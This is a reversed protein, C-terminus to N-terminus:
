PASGTVAVTQPSNPANDAVNMTASYSGSASPTSLIVQITCSANPAISVGGGCNSTHGFASANAGSFSISTVTLNATGTNTLTVPLTATTGPAISGFNLATPSLSVAPALPGSGSVAVIQPSSPATDTVNMTASYSGTAPPTFTVQITCSSGPAISVGGGCNSSHGFASNNAGYFIISSVTLGATGTNTLTVPLTVTKGAAVIGFSLSTPSLMVAPASATIALTGNAFTFNYRASALTGITVTIPYTGIPSSSTATTSLSPAGTTASSQTDGNVFGAITYALTPVAAGQAMQQNNATVTLSAKNVTFIGAVFTFSYNTGAAVTIPYSGPVSTSTATTTVAPVGTFATAATDGNVFGTYAVTLVPLASGYTSSLNNAKVTLVAKAVTMTGNAYTITYNTSAVTGGSITIPYGGVPSASTAITTLSPAGTFATSATDGNVLGTAAYTLTPLTAGYTTTLNNARLTLSAKSVTLTGSTYTITYNTSAVTGAAITIPYTGVKSASTATTTISPTGTFATSATDGNVLGTAAYTLTPLTAGYTTALNNATLTLAAKTVTLTGQTITPTYDALNAGSLTATIPYTGAPSSATGTSSYVATITDGNVAGTITGSFTPLAAGYVKTASNVVVTLPAKNVTLTQTVQTAANYDANGAQNAAIVISGAGTVTLVGNSITGPGSVVSFSVALGSTATASLTIPSAGYTVASLAPFTISQSAKNVTIALSQASLSKYYTNGGYSVAITHSGVSLQSIPIAAAGATVTATQATGGDITYSVTGTPAPVWSYAGALTVNVTLAQGWVVTSSPAGALTMTPTVQTATLSLSNSTSTAYKTDGQYVAQASHTGTGALFTNSLTATQSVQNLLVTIVGTATQSNPNVGAAFDLKGDHNLDAVAVSQPIYAVPYSNFNGFTGDGNGNAIYVVPGTGGPIVIDVKGDGNMDALTPPQTGYANTNVLSTQETQFTGNGNGKWVGIESGSDNSVLDLKGDNNVDAIAVGDTSLGDNARTLYQAAMFTGNGNGLLVAVTNNAAVAVDPKGDGNFDAVVLNSSSALSSIGTHTPPQFTGDGNGLLVDITQNAINLAVIDLKGDGNFDAVSVWYATIGPDIISPSLPFTGDGNGLLIGVGGTGALVIDLKGDGNFDALASNYIGAIDLYVGSSAQFSGDGNGLNVFLSSSTSQAFSVMDPIGDGNVDGFAVAQANGTPGSVAPGQVFTQALSGSSIAATGPTLGSTVDSFLINGTPAVPGAGIVTGTFTYAGATGTSAFSTTTPYHGTVTVAVAASTSIADGGVYKATISNSGLPILITKLTATGIAKGGSTTSVVQATGLVTTGDLFTVTGNTLPHSSQDTVTATLTVATGFAVSTPSASLTTTTTPVTVGTGTLPVLQPSGTLNDPISINATKAGATAPSFVVGVICSAGQSLTQGSCGDSTITFDATDSNTLQGIVLGNPGTSTISFFQQASGEGVPQQTSFALSQPFIQIGSYPAIGTGTITVSRSGGLSDKESLQATLAGVSGPTFTLYVSCYSGGNVTAGSCNDTESFNSTSGSLTFTNIIAPTTGQNLLYLHVQNSSTSVLQNGFAVSTQSFALSNGAALSSGSLPITQPSGPASDFVTLTGTVTTGATASGPSFLIYYNCSQGPVLSYNTCGDSQMTFGTSLTYGTVSVPVNGVNTLMVNPNWTGTTGATVPPFQVTTPSLVLSSGAAIANGSLSATLPTATTANAYTVPFVLTGKKAGASTPSFLMVAYCSGGPSITQNSCDGSSANFDGTTSAGVITDTGTLQGVTLPLNGNNYLYVTQQLGNITQGVATDPFTVVSPQLYAENDQAAGQGTLNATYTGTKGDGYTVPFSITATRQGGATPAFQVYAACQGPTGNNANPSSVTTNSCGDYYFGFDSSSGFNVTGVSFPANGTNVLYIPQYSSITTVPQTSFALAGPTLYGSNTDTPAYGVLTVAFSGANSTVTLTGTQLGTATPAFVVNVACSAEMGSCTNYANAGTALQFNASGATVSAGTLTFTPSNAGYFFSVTTAASVTKVQTLSFVVDQPNFHTPASSVATGSLSATMTGANTPITLSASLTGTATPEYLLQIECEQGPNLTNGSGTGCSDSIAVASNNVSAAATFTVPQTGNNLVYVPVWNVPSNVQVSGFNISTPWSTASLTAAQGGGNLAVTQTGASTNLTLTGNDPSTAVTPTFTVGVQCAESPTLTAPLAPCSYNTVAYDGSATTSTFTFPVNGQNTLTVLQQSSSSGKNLTGFQLASPTVSASGIAAIGNGVLPITQPSTSLPDLIALTGTRAGTATPSFVVGVECYTTLNAGNAAIAPLNSGSCDDYSLTFDGTTNVKNIPFASNGTNFIYYYQTPSPTGVVQDLYVGNGPQFELIPMDAAGQGVLTFTIPTSSGAVPITVTATETAAVSPSFTITTASYSGPDISTGSGYWGGLNFDAASGQASTLTITPSGIYLEQTGTNTLYLTQGPSTQGIPMTGFNFTTGSLAYGTSGGAGSPPVGVGSLNVQLTNANGNIYFYSSQPGVQSADPQFVVQV